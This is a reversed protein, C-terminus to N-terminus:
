LLKDLMCITLLGLFRLARRIDKIGSKARLQTRGKFKRREKGM